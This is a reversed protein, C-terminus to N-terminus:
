KLENGCASCFKAGVDNKNGCKGCIKESAVPKGCNPCFAASAPVPKGCHACFRTDAKTGGNGGVGPHGIIKMVDYYAKKDELELKRLYVERDFKKDDLREIEALYEKLKRQRQADKAFDDINKGEEDTIGVYEIIFRDLGIGWSKAFNESLIEGVREGIGKKEAAFQDYTIKKEKVARLFCDTFENVVEAGFRKKFDELDFESRAGVVKRFFQEFNVIHIGFQGRAGVNVVEESAEDRYKFRQPTGWLIVVDTDKPMYVVEVSLGSKWAKVECDGDFVKYNGSDYIRADGGGKIIYARHTLPVEIRANEERVVDNVRVFLVSNDNVNAKCLNQEFKIVQVTKAKHKGFM